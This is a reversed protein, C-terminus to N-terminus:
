KKKQKFKTIIFGLGLLISDRCEIQSANDYKEADNLMEHMAGFERKQPPKIARVKESLKIEPKKNWFM